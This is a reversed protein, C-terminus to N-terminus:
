RRSGAAAGAPRARPRDDVGGVWAGLANGLNFAAINLSSALSQGAGAAKELVRLQLPAVTAFAAAGLLRSSPSPRSRATCARRICRASCSRWRAGAHRAADRMLHRDALRGGLLNGISWGAASSSCSRRSRPRRSAPSRRDPDAPYLHLGRVRRCLRAGDDAPRAAGAAPALVTSSTACRLRSRRRNGAHGEARLRAIM